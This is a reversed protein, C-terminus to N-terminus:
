WYELGRHRDTSRELLVRPIAYGLQDILMGLYGGLAVPQVSDMKVRFGGEDADLGLPTSRFGM